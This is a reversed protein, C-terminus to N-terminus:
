ARRGLRKEIEREMGDTMHGGNLQIFRAIEREAARTRSAEIAEVVRGWFSRGRTGQRTHRQRAPITFATAM